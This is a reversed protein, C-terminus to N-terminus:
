SVGVQNFMEVLIGVMRSGEEWPKVGGTLRCGEPTPRPCPQGPAPYGATKVLHRKFLKQTDGFITPKGGWIM